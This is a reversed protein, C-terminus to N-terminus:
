NFQPEEEIIELIFSHESNELNFLKAENNYFRIDLESLEDLLDNYIIESNIFTNYLHNGPTNNLLIKTFYQLKNTNLINNLKHISLYIYKDGAINNINKYVKKQLINGGYGTIYKNKQTKNIISEINGIFKKTMNIGLLEFQLNIKLKNKINNEYGIDIVEFGDINQNMVHDSNLKKNKLLGGFGLYKGKLTISYHNTYYEEKNYLNSDIWVNNKYYGYIPLGNKYLKNDVNNIISSDSKYVLDLYTYTFTDYNDNKVPQIINNTTIRNIKNNNMTYSYEPIYYGNMNEISINHTLYEQIIPIGENM